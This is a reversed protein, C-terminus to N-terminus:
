SCRKIHLRELRGDLLMHEKRTVMMLNTPNNNRPNGDIHHIDYGKPVDPYTRRLRERISSVTAKTDGKWMGNQVGIHTERIRQKAKETHPYGISGKVKGNPRLIGLITLQRWISSKSTHLVEAINGTSSGNIYLIEMEQIQAKTFTIKRM